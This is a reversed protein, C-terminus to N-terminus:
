KSMRLDFRFAVPNGISLKKFDPHHPNLLFNNEQPLLASPVQLVPSSGSKTWDDGIHRLEQPAPFARWTKPLDALDIRVVLSDSVEVPILVYSALLEPGDLHVLMELVALSQSEAAYVVVTGASNWRGGYKRAGAGDFATKAHKRKTIRWVTFSLFFGWAGPPRDPKGSRASWDRHAFLRAAHRQRTSKEAHVAM